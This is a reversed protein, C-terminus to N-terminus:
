PASRIEPVGAGGDDLAGAMAACVWALMVVAIAAFAAGWWILPLLVPTM